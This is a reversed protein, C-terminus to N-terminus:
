EVKLCVLEIQIGSKWYYRINLGITGVAYHLGM